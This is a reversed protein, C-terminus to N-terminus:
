ETALMILAFDDIYATMTDTNNKVIRWVVSITHSGATLRKATRLQYTGFSGDSCFAQTPIPGNPMMAVGNDHIQVAVWNAESTNGLLACEATFTAIITDGGAPINITRTAGPIDAYTETATFFDEGTAAIVKKIGGGDITGAFAPSSAALSLALASASFSLTKMKSIEKISGQRRPASCAM